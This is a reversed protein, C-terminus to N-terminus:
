PTPRSLADRTGHRPQIFSVCVVACGEGGGDVPRLPPDLRQHGGVDHQPDDHQGRPLVHRRLHAENKLHSAQMRRLLPAFAPTAIWVPVSACLSVHGKPRHGPEIKKGKAQSFTRACVCMCPQMKRMAQASTPTLSASLVCSRSRYQLYFFVVAKRAPIGGAAKEKKGMSRQKCLPVCRGEQKQTEERGAVM